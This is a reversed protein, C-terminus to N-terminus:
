DTVENVLEHPASRLRRAGLADLVAGPHPHDGARVIVAALRDDARYLRVAVCRAAPLGLVDPIEDASLVIRPLRVVEHPVEAALLSRHVDLADKMRSAKGLPLRSRLTPRM